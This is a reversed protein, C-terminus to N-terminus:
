LGAKATGVTVERAGRLLADEQLGHKPDRPETEQERKQLKDEQAQPSPPPDPPVFGGRRIVGWSWLTGFSALCGRIVEWHHFYSFPGSFCALPARLDRKRGAGSTHIRFTGWPPDRVRQPACCGWLSYLLFAPEWCIHGSWGVAPHNRGIFWPWLVWRM